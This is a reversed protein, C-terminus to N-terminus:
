NLFFLQEFSRIAKSKIDDGVELSLIDRLQTIENTYDPSEFSDDYATMEYSGGTLEGILKIVYNEADECSASMLSAMTKFQSKALKRAEGSADSSVSAEVLGATKNLENTDNEISKRLSEAQTIDAGLRNVNVASPLIILDNSGWSLLWNRREEATMDSVGELGSIVWRTFTQSYQESGLLSLINNINMQIQALPQVFSDNIINLSQLVVPIDSFGHPIPEGISTVKQANDFFVDTVFTSDYLRCFNNGAEDVFSILAELLYGDVITWNVLSWPSASSVRYSNGGESRAQAISQTGQSSSEFIIPAIGYIMANKLNSQMITSLSKGRGDINNVDPISEDREPENLFVSGVYQNVINSIYNRPSTRELRQKYNDLEECEFRKIIPKAKADKGTVYDEDVKVSTEWFKWRNHIKKIDNHFPLKKGVEIQM